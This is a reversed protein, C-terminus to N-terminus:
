GKAVIFTGTMTNPHFDCQFFYTGARSIPDINYPKSGSGPDPDSFSYFLAAEPTVDSPDSSPYISFDHPFADQNDLTVTFKKGAVVALCSTDFTTGSAVITIDTGDPKCNTTGGGAQVSPTPSPRAVVM